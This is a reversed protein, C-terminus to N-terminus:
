GTFRPKAHVTATAPAVPRKPAAVRLLARSSNNHMSTEPQLATVFGVNTISSASEVRTLIHVAISKGVGLSAIRCVVLRSQECTGGKLTAHVLVLGAPLRDVIRVGAARRPGRDTVRLTYRALQGERVSTPAVTKVLGLDVPGPPPSATTTLTTKVPTTGTTVTTTVPPSPSAGCRSGTSSATATSTLGGFTVSWGFTTGNPINSIFLAKADTGAAFATPPTRGSPAAQSLRNAPGLAITQATGTSNRYGFMADYTRNQQKLVCSVFVSIGGVTRRAALPPVLVLAAGAVFLSVAALIARPRRGKTGKM